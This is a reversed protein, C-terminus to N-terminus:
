NKFDNFFKFNIPEKTNYDTIIFKLYAGFIVSIYPRITKNTVILELTGFYNDEKFHETESRYFNICYNKKIEENIEFNFAYGEKIKNDAIKEIIGKWNKIGYFYKNIRIKIKNQIIQSLIAGKVISYEKDDLISYHIKKLRNKFENLFIQSKWFGGVLILHTQKRKKYEEKIFEIIKNITKIIIKKIINYPLYIINNETKISLNNNDYIINNYINNKINKIRDIYKLNLEFINYGDYYNFNEKIYNIDTLFKIYGELQEKKYKEITDKGIIQKVIELIDNNINMSGIFKGLSPSIQEIDRNKNVIKYETLEVKYDGSDIIMFEKGEKYYSIDYSPNELFSFVAADSDLTLYNKTMGAAIACEKMAAKSFDDWISPVNLIWNVETKNFNIKRKFNVWNLAYDSSLKLYEIITKKKNIYENESLKKKKKNIDNFLLKIKDLYLLESIENVDYNPISNLTRKGFNKGTNNNRNLLIVSPQKIPSNIGTINKDFTYLFKTEYNGLDIAIDLVINNIINIPFSINNGELYKSNQEYDSTRRKKNISLYLILASFLFFGIINIPLKM